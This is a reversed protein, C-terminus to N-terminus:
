NSYRYYTNQKQTKQNLVFQIEYISKKERGNKASNDQDQYGM